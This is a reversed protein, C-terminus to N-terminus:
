KPKEPSIHWECDGDASCLEPGPCPIYYGAECDMSINECCPMLDSIECCCEDCCLGDYGLDKLGKQLIQKVTM